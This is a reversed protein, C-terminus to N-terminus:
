SVNAQTAVTFDHPRVSGVRVTMPGLLYALEWRSHIGLKRFVGKMHGRVTEARINLIAAVESNSLGDAALLAIRKEQRTLRDLAARLGRRTEPAASALAAVHCRIQDLEANAQEVSQHVSEVWVEFSDLMMTLSSFWYADIGTKTEVGTRKRRDRSPKWDPEIPADTESTLWDKDPTTM